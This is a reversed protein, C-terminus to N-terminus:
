DHSNEESSVAGPARQLDQKESAMFLAARAFEKGRSAPGTIREKAQEITETTLIGNIVPRETQLAIHQFASATAEAIIRHHDTAGALVVGIGILADFGGSLALMNVTYPVESSGPVRRLEINSEAVGAAILEDRVGALMADTLSQNYCAAVLGIRLARAQEASVQMDPHDTSM